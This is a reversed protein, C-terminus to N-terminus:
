KELPLCIKLLDEKPIPLFEKYFDLIKEKGFLSIKLERIDNIFKNYM